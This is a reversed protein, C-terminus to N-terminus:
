CLKEALGYKMHNASLVLHSDHHHCKSCNSIAQLAENFLNTDIIKYRNPLKPSSKKSRLGLKAAKCASRTLSRGQKKPSNEFSNEFVNNAAIKTQSRNELVKFSKSTNSCSPTNGTDAPDATSSTTASSNPSNTVEKRSRNHWATLNNSRRKKINRLNKSAFKM